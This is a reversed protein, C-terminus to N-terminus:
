KHCRLRACFQFIGAPHRSEQLEKAERGRVFGMFGCHWAGATEAIVHLSQAKWAKLLRSPLTGSFAPSLKFYDKLPIDTHLLAQPQFYGEGRYPFLAMRDKKYSREIDTIANWRV